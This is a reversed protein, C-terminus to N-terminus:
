GIIDPIPRGYSDTPFLTPIDGAEYEKPYFAYGNQDISLPKGYHDLPIGAANTPILRGNTDTAAGDSDKPLLKGDPGLVFYVPRGNRDTPMPGVDPSQAPYIINGNKDQPFPEGFENVPVGAVNTPLVNGSEDIVRGDKNTPLLNGDLGIVPYIPKGNSDTPLPESDIGRVPYIISGNRDTPLPRGKRDIPIGAANTPLLNGDPDVVAGDFKRSLLRGNPAIVSYVPRGHQDTPPLPCDLGDKPYIAQGESNTPLPENRYNVPEGINNTPITKGFPGLVTGDEMTPLLHGNPGIINFQRQVGKRQEIRPIVMGSEDTVPLIFIGDSTTPLVTNSEDVPHGDDNVSLLQGNPSIIRGMKDSKLLRGNYQVKVPQGNSDTPLVYNGVYIFNGDSDRPLVEDKENVPLGADNTPILLGDESVFLGSEVTALLAGDPYVVPYIIRGLEDTPVAQQIVTESDMVVYRGQEDTPYPSGDVSIPRGAADTPFIQGHRDIYLGQENKSFPQDNPGIVPYIPKMNIDTPLPQGDKGIVPYIYEGKYNRLLPIGNPGVPLGESDWVIPNGLNDVMQGYENTPLPEGDFGVVRPSIGPTPQIAEKEKLPTPVLEDFHTSVTSLEKPHEFEPILTPPTVKIIGVEEEEEVPECSKEDDALKFGNHCYCSARIVGEDEEFMCAHACHCRIDRSPTRIKVAESELNDGDEFKATVVFNYETDLQLGDLAIKDTVNAPTEMYMVASASDATWYKIIYKAYKLFERLTSDVVVVVDKVVVM